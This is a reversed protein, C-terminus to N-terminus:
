DWPNPCVQIFSFKFFETNSLAHCAQVQRGSVTIIRYLDHSVNLSNFIQSTTMDWSQVIYLLCLKQQIKLIHKSNSVNLM